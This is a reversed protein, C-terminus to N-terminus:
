LLDYLENIAQLNQWGFEVAAPKLTALDGLRFRKFIWPM